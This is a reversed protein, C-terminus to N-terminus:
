NALQLSVPLLKELGFLCRFFLAVLEFREVAAM